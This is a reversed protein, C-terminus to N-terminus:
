PTFLAYVEVLAIGPAGDSSQAHATYAGPPLEAVLAADKSGVPLQFAHAQTFTAALTADWDDNSALPNQGHYLTLRPDALAGGVNFNTLTPGVARILVRLPTNGTITFGAILVEDGSGVQCRASVNMLIATTPSYTTTLDYIEGLAIGTSDDARQIHATYSDAPLDAALAADKSGLPLTFASAATFIPALSADWDDSVALPDSGYFLTLTPDPLANTINFRALTPGVARVLVPTDLTGGGTVFGVIITGSDSGAMTRISLNSLRGPDASTIVLTADAVGGHNPDSSTAVVHYTGPLTPPTTSGNYTVTVPIGAPTTETTMAHSAGSYPVEITPHLPDTVQPFTIVVPAPDVRLTIVRTNTGASNTASITVTYTGATAPTGSIVGTSTNITLGAPLGNAGFSTPGTLATITYTMPSGFASTASGASTIVPAPTGIIDMVSTTQSTTLVIDDVHFTPVAASNWNQLYFRTINASGEVGLSSLPVEVKQWTNAQLLPLGVSPTSWDDGRVAGVGIYQGGATGGHIWFTLTRFSSTDMAPGAYTLVLAGYGGPTLSIANPASHTVTTSAPDVTMGWSGSTDWGATITNDYVLYETGGGSSRDVIALQYRLVKGSWFYFDLNVTGAKANEFFETDFEITNNGYNPRFKSGFPQFSTWDVPGAATGDTYKSEMTALLDGNFAVPITFAVKTTTTRAAPVPTGAYRVFIKWAPGTNAHLKITAKEGFGGTAYKSLVHAKLTLTEGSVTYDTLPTLTTGNDEVSVLTNGNLHMDVIRDGVPAAADIFLLDREATIARGVVAQMMIEGLDRNRWDNTYRDYIGGTDWLMMTMGKSRGYAQVYEHYKLQEGRQIWSGSLVSFEGVIVPIGAAVLTDHVANFPTHVWEISTEDFTPENGLNVSFPYWGYYHVTAILNPDNLSTITNKLSDIMPQDARTYVSPLVLPRTANGGGTSRILQVFATNVEHLMAAQAADNLGEYGPENISEFLLKNSHNKFRTAIQLWVKDFRDLTDAPHAPMDDMWTWSDHHLNIMVYLGADLSWDVVQQVHNMWAPDITYDPAPGMYNSWTIPIRLSKYGKAVLGQIMAQTTEPAGWSSRNPIADLTNGWNTGPQMAEVYQQMATQASATSALPLVASLVAGALLLARFRWGTQSKLVPFEPSVTTSSSGLAPAACTRPPLCELAHLM